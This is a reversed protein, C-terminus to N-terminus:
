LLGAAHRAAARRRGQRCRDRRHVRAAGGDGGDRVGRARERDRPDVSARAGLDRPARTGTRAAGRQAAGRQQGRHRFRRLRDRRAARGPAGGRAGQGGRDGRAGGTRARPDLVPQGLARGALAAHGRARSSRAAHHRQQGPLGADRARSKLALWPISGCIKTTFHSPHDRSARAGTRWRAMSRAEKGARRDEADERQDQEEGAAGGLRRPAVLADVRQGLLVLLEEGRDRQQDALVLLLGEQGDLLVVLAVGEDLPEPADAIGIGVGRVVLEPLPPLRQHAFRGLQEAVDLFVARPHQESLPAGSPRSSNRQM